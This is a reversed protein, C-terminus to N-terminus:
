CDRCSVFLYKTKMGQAWPPGFQPIIQLSRNNSVSGFFLGFIGASTAGYAMAYSIRNEEVGLFDVPSFCLICFKLTQRDTQRGTQRDTQRNTQRGAQRDAQRQIQRTSQHSAPQSPTQKQRETHGHTQEATIRYTQRDVQKDARSSQRHRNNSEVQRDTTWDMQRYTRRDTQRDATLTFPPILKHCPMHCSKRFPM